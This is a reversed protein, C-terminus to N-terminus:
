LTNIWDTMFVSLEEAAEDAAAEAAEDLFPRHPQAAWHWSSRPGHGFVPHRTGFEFPYAMPASDGGAIVYAANPGSTVHISAATRASFGASIKKAAKAVLGAANALHKRASVATATM